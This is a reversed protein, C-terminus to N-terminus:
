NFLHANVWDEADQKQLKGSDCLVAIVAQKLDARLKLLEKRVHALSRRLYHREEDTLWELLVRRALEHSSTLGLNTAEASLAKAAEPDLRYSIVATSNARDRSNAPKM